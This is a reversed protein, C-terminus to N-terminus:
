KYDEYSKEEVLYSSHEINIKRKIECRKDNTYYVARALEIFESDFEKKKEKIRVKDEIDWLKENTTLENYEKYINELKQSDTINKIKIKLITIKDVLEGLSIPVM